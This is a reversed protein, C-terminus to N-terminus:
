CLTVEAIQRVAEATVRAVQGQSEALSQASQNLASTAETAAHILSQSVDVHQRYAADTDADRRQRATDLRAAELEQNAAQQHAQM